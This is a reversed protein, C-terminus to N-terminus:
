TINIVILPHSNIETLLQKWTNVIIEAKFKVTDVLISVGTAWKKTFEFDVITQLWMGESSNEWQYYLINQLSLM